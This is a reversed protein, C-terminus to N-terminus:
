EKEKEKEAKIVAQQFERFSPPANKGKEFINKHWLEQFIRDKETKSLGEKTGKMKIDGRDKGM